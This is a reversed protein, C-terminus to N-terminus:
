FLNLYKRLGRLCIQRHPIQILIACGEGEVRWSVRDVSCRWFSLRELTSRDYDKTKRKLDTPERLLVVDEEEAAAAFESENFEEVEFDASGDGLDPAVPSSAAQVELVAGPAGELLDVVHSAADAEFHSAHAHAQAEAQNCAEKWQQRVPGGAEQV